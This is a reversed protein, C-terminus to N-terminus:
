RAIRRIDAGLREMHEWFGPYSKSVCEADKITTPGEAALAAAALSMAVRHDGQPDVHAGRLQSGRIKVTDGQETFDAGMARLGIRMSKVRDSEKLRLRSLGRLTSTGEAQTCLTSVIPFLDPCDSLDREIAKLHSRWTKISPGQAQVDADLDELVNIIEIDAQSSAPNLNNVGAEGGLAGMALPYAASSWDGEVTLTAAKYPANPATLTRMDRSATAQIGFQKMADVTMSVYPKSELPTTVQITLPTEALPAVLLLATVFQSSVNGRIETIGGKLGGQGHVTVPPLGGNSECKVGLQKLASLLPEMPRRSLSHGGTLTVKGEVLASVATLLRMTTGSEGCHVPGRPEKLEGGRIVWTSGLKRHTAGLQELAKLTALTDDSALPRMITSEGDALAALTLARHTASKSSPATVEGLISSSSVQIKM